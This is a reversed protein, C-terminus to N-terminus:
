KLERLLFIFFLGYNKVLAKLIQGTERSYGNIATRKTAKATKVFHKLGYLMVSKIHKNENSYYMWLIAEIGYGAKRIRPLLPYIDKKFLAREGAFKKFINLSVDSKYNTVPWGIVMDASKEILPQILSHIHENKINDVDADFFVLIDGKAKKIGTYLAFGKGCNKHLRINKVYHNNSFGAMIKSTNDTSGDDVLIIEDIYSSSLLGEVVGKITQEENYACVIASTNM